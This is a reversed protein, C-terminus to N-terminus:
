VQTNLLLIQRFKAKATTANPNILLCDRQVNRLKLAWKSSVNDATYEAIQYNEEVRSEATTSLEHLTFSGKRSSIM